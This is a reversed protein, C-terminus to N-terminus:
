GELEVTNKDTQSAYQMKSQTKEHARQAARDYLWLGAAIIAIGGLMYLLQPTAMETLKTEILNGLNIGFGTVLAFAAGIKAWVSSREKKVTVPESQPPPKSAPAQQVSMSAVNDAYVAPPAEPVEALTAPRAGESFEAGPELADALAKELSPDPVAPPAPPDELKVVDDGEDDPFDLAWAKTSDYLAPEANVSLHLHHKHANKGSYPRWQWPSQKSSCIKGNWIIYKIRPDRSEVLTKALWHCDIGTAPDHTFDRATVVGRGHADKVWPNHDSSRSAHAADGIGGDSVKSRRPFAENLQKRLTELAAAIRWAM